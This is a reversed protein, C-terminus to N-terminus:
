LTRMLGIKDYAAGMQNGLAELETTAEKWIVCFEARRIPVPEM